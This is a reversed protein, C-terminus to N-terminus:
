TSPSATPSESSKAELLAPIIELRLSQWLQPDRFFYTEGVLVEQLVSQRMAASPNAELIELAREWDGQADVQSAFKELSRALDAHRGPPFWQGAWNQLLDALRQLRADM